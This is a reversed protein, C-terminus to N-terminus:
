EIRPVPLTFNAAYNLGLSVSSSVDFVFFFQANGFQNHIHVSLQGGSLYM